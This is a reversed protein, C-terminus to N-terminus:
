VQVNMITKTSELAKNLMSTFLEIEQQIYSVKIQILLMNAPSLEKDMLAMTQVDSALTELQSQSHTLLGLFRDMPANLSTPKEPPKYELGANDLAIKLSEDIHGLKNRLITQVSGKIELNPTELKNKLTDIQAIVDEAQNALEQPSSRTFNNVKQNLDRVEDFLNNATKATKDKHETSVAETKVSRQRMLADFYDKNPEQPPVQPKLKKSLKKIKDIKEIAM